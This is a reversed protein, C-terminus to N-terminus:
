ILPAPRSAAGRANGKKVLATWYSPVHKGAVIVSPDAAAMFDSLAAALPLPQNDAQGAKIFHRLEGANASLSEGGHTLVQQIVNEFSIRAAKSKELAEWMKAPTMGFNAGYALAEIFAAQSLGVALQEVAKMIQGAGSEGCYTIKGKPALKKLISSCAKFIEENGGVYFSVSGDAVRRENGSIPADLFYVNRSALWTSLRRTEGLETVGLDVLIKGKSLGALLENQVVNVVTESNPLAILIIESAAVVAAPSEAPMAGSSSLTKMRSVNADFVSVPYKADLLRQAIPAGMNGIGIVGLTPILRTANAM